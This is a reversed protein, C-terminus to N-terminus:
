NDRVREAVLTPAGTTNFLLGGVFVRDGPNVNGLGTVDIFVTGSVVDVDILSISSHTLVPSLQLLTFSPPVGSANVTGVVGAIQTPELTVSDTSLTILPFATPGPTVVPTALPHIEVTQGAVIGALNTFALGAPITFGGSDVSFTTSSNTQVTVLLGPVVSTFSEQLDMLIMNFSNAAANVSVVVGQLSPVNPQELLRVSSATFTGGPILNVGVDVVQGDVLCSFNDAACTPFSYTTTSNTAISASLGGFGAQIMFNPSSVSTIRGVVHFSSIPSTATPPIVQKVTITPSVTLNGQVSANVDFHMEFGVPSNASLTLPFPATPSQVTASMQNLPPNFICFQGALCTQTGLTLTQNTSNFVTM